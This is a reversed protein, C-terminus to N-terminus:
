KLSRQPFYKTARKELIAMGVPLADLVADLRNKENILKNHAKTYSGQGL